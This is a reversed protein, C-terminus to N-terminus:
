ARATRQTVLAVLVCNIALISLGARLGSREAVVGILAPLTIGGLQALTLLVGFLAGSYDPYRDGALALSTPVIVAIAVGIAFPGLALIVASPVAVFLVICAAGAVAARVIAERKMRDIRSSFVIRGAILGLWHSSLAWTAGEATFGASALFTSTWGAMSAETAAGLM